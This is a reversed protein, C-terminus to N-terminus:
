WGAREDLVCHDFEFSYLAASVLDFGRLCFVFLVFPRLAYAETVLPNHPSHASLTRLITKVDRNAQEEGDTPLRSTAVLANALACRMFNRASGMSRLFLAVLFLLQPM